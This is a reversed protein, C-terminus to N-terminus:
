TYKKKKKQTQHKQNMKTLIASPNKKNTQNNKQKKKLHNTSECKWSTQLTKTIFCVNKYMIATKSEWTLPRPAMEVKGKGTGEVSAPELEIKSELKGRVM